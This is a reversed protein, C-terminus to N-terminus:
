IKAVSLLLYNSIMTHYLRDLIHLLFMTSIVFQLYANELILGLRVRGAIAATPAAALLIPRFRM